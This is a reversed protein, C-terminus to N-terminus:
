SENLFIHFIENVDACKTKSLLPLLATSNGRRCIYGLKKNCASSEWKSVKAANLTACNLGPQSSPHGQPFMLGHTTQNKSLILQKLKLKEINLLYM